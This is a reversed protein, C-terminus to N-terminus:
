GPASGRRVEIAATGVGMVHLDGLGQAFVVVEMDAADQVDEPLTLTFDTENVERASRFLKPGQFERVVWHEQLRKGANEGRPVETQVSRQALAVFQAVKTQDTDFSAGDAMTANVHVAVDRDELAASVEFEIATPQQRADGIQSLALKRLTGSFHVRGDIVMQPTYPGRTTTEDKARGYPVRQAYTIQRQDFLPDAYPDKWGLDDWYTVHYTLAVVDARGFGESPLDGILADAPPCSNCGQSSFLEVLVRKPPGDYDRDALSAAVRASQEPAETPLPDGDTGCGAAALLVVGVFVPRVSAFQLM